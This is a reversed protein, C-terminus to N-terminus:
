QQLLAATVMLVPLRTNNLVKSNNDFPYRSSSCSDGEPCQYESSGDNYGIEVYQSGNSDKTTIMHYKLSGNQGFEAKSRMWESSGYDNTGSYDPNIRHVLSELLNEGVNDLSRNLDVWQRDLTTDQDFKFRHGNIVTGQEQSNNIAMVEIDQTYYGSVESVQYTLCSRVDSEETTGSESTVVYIHLTNEDISYPEEIIEKISCNFPLGEIFDQSADRRMSYERTYSSLDSNEATDRVVYELLPSDVSSENTLDFENQVDVVFASREVKSDSKIVEYKFWQANQEDDIDGKSPAIYSVYAEEAKPNEERLRKLERYSQKVVPMLELARAKVDSDDEKIFDSYLKEVSVNYWSAVDSEFKQFSNDGILDQLQLEECSSMANDDIDLKLKMASWVLSTLPTTSKIESDSTTMKVPPFFLQYPGDIPNILNDVDIAGIPVDVVIPAYDVCDAIEGSLSLEYRGNADTASSPEGSDLEGNYNLDLFATAGSIYGGNTYGDIAVGQISKSQLSSPSTSSSTAGGDGGGCATLLTSVTAITIIKSTM